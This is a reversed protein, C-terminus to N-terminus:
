AVVTDSLDVGLLKTFESAAVPSQFYHGQGEECNQAQLAIFQGRTEVGEAIVQLHFNRGLGIVATVIKADGAETCLGGVFSKDIKLADIPFRRLHSLSSYGTGFDDLTLQIGMDKLSRMVSVTLQADQMLAGETLEFGLSTPEMGTEDIIARVYDIFHKSRLEIASINISIPM